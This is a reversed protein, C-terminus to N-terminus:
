YSQKYRGRSEVKKLRELVSATHKSIKYGQLIASWYKKVKKYHQAELAEKLVHLDVAKDEVNNSEYGLGFDLFFVKNKSLIMNATTLDGHIIESDHLKAINSGIQKCITKKNSLKDLYESLKKGKLFELEINYDKNKIIKPVPIVKSAKELLRLEKKTRQKRLKEDLQPHRYGKSIRSKIVVNRQQNIIAEAGQAIITM